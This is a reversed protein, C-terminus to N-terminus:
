AIRAGRGVQKRVDSLVDLLTTLLGEPEHAEPYLSKAFAKYEEILPRAEEHSIKPADEVWIMGGNGEDRVSVLPTEDRTITATYALGQRGQMQGTIKFFYRALDTVTADTVEVEPKLWDESKLVFDLIERSLPAVIRPKRATTTTM